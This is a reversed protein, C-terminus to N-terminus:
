FALVRLCELAEGRLFKAIPANRDRDIARCLPTEAIVLLIGEVRQSRLLVRRGHQGGIHVVDSGDPGEAKSVQSGGSFTEMVTSSPPSQAAGRSFHPVYQGKPLEIIVVD